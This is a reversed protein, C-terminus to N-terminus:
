IAQSLYFIINKKNSLYDPLYTWGIGEIEDIEKVIDLLKIKFNNIVKVSTKM